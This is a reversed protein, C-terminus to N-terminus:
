FSGLEEKCIIFSRVKVRHLVKKVRNIGTKNKQEPCYVLASTLMLRIWKM